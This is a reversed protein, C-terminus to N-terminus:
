YSLLVTDAKITGLKPVTLQWASLIELLLAEFAHDVKDLEDILLVCAEVQPPAGAVVVKQSSISLTCITESEMGTRAWSTRKRELFLRQLSEDFKGIAKEETIGEYCQLAGSHYRAACGCLGTRNKWV